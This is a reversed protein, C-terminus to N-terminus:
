GIAKGLACGECPNFTGTVQISLAKTAAHTIIKSPHGLEVHLNYINKKPPVITLQAKKDNAKCLFDVGAVLDNHTKTQCDLIINGCTTNVMINICHDNSIRNGQSLKYTLSFQVMGTKPCFKVPWLTHMWETGDVQHVKVHLKGKKMASMIGSSGQISEDINTVDNLSTNDNTIHCSADSDGIWNNRTIFYFTDNNIICM